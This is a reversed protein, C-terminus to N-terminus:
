RGVMRAAAIFVIEDEGLGLVPGHPPFQVQDDHRDQKEPKIDELHTAVASLAVQGPSILRHVCVVRWSSLPFMDLAKVSLKRGSTPIVWSWNLM